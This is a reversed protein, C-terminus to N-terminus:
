ESRTILKNLESGPTTIERALKQLEKVLASRCQQLTTCNLTKSGLRRFVERHYQEPHPGKHGPVHVRNAADDLSMGARDFIDQFKPTWPGGRVDSESNKNTAIHHEPGGAAVVGVSSGSAERASMAVAGPALAITVEGAASVVVAEVKAAAGLRVGSQGAAVLAAQGSGPLTAIKAAMLEATGGLSAMALMIFARAANKGMVAGYKEGARQLEDFTTAVKVEEALV